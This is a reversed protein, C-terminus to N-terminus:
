SSRPARELEDAGEEPSIWPVAAVTKFRTPHKAAVEALSDNVKKASEVAAKPDTMSQIGPSTLPIVQVDVGENDMDELRKEYFDLHLRAKLYDGYQKKISPIFADDFHEFEDTTVAEEISIKKTAV